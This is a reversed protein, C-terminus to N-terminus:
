FNEHEFSDLVTKPIEEAGQQQGGGQASQAAFRRFQLRHILRNVEREPETMQADAERRRLHALFDGAKQFQERLTRRLGDHFDARFFAAREEQEGAHRCRVREQQREIQRDALVTGIGGPAFIKVTAERTVPLADFEDARIRVIRARQFGDASQKAAARQIQQENVAVM